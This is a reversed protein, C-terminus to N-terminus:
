ENGNPNAADNLDGQMSQRLDETLDIIERLDNGVEVPIEYPDPNPGKLVVNAETDMILEGKFREIASHMATGLEIFSATLNNVVKSFEPVIL